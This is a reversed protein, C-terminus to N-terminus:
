SAPLGSLWFIIGLVPIVIILIAAVADVRADENKNGTENMDENM